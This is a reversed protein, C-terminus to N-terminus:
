AIGMEQPNIPSFVEIERFCNLNKTAQFFKRTTDTPLHRKPSTSVGLGRTYQFVKWRNRGKELGMGLLIIWPSIYVYWRSLLNPGVEWTIIEDHGRFSKAEMKPTATAGDVVEGRTTYKEM